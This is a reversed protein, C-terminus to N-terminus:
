LTRIVKTLNLQNIKMENMRLDIMINKYKFKRNVKKWKWCFYNMKKYEIFGWIVKCLQTYRVLIWQMKNKSEEGDITFDTDDVFAVAVEQESENTILVIM